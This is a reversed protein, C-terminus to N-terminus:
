ELVLFRGRMVFDPSTGESWAVFLIEPGIRIAAPAYPAALAGNLEAPSGVPVLAGEQAACRQVLLANKIGGANEYWAAAPGSALPVVAPTHNIKSATGLRCALAPDDALSRVWVERAGGEKADFALWAGSGDVGVHPNATEKGELAPVPLGFTLGGDESLAVEARDDGEVVTRTWAAYLRGDWSALAPFVQSADAEFFPLTAQDGVTGAGDVTELVVQFGTAGAAAMAGGVAFDGDSLPAAVAMWANADADTDPALVPLKAAADMRPTGDRAFTRYHISLNNEALPDDEQWAVLVTDGSLAIAPDTQNVSDPTHVPFPAVLHTGDCAMRLAHVDFGNGEDPLNFALWIGEGDFAAAVHIQTSPGEEYLPFSDWAQLQDLCGAPLVTEPGADGASLDPPLEAGGDEPPAGEDMRPLDTAGDPLGVDATADPTNSSGGSCALLATVLLVAPIPLVRM